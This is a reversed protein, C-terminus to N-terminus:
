RGGDPSTLPSLTSCHRSCSICSAGCACGSVCCDGDSTIGGPCMATGSRRGGGGCSILTLVLGIALAYTKM